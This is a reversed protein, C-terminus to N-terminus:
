SPEPEITLPHVGEWGAAMVRELTQDCVDPACQLVVTAGCDRLIRLLIRFDESKHRLVGQFEVILIVVGKSREEEIGDRICEDFAGWNRGFYSPFHMVTAVETFVTAKTGMHGGQITIVTFKGTDFLRKALDLGDDRTGILFYADEGNACFEAVVDDITM